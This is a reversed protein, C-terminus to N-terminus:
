LTAIKYLKQFRQDEAMEDKTAVLTDLLGKLISREYVNLAVADITRLLVDLMAEPHREAHGSEKLEYLSGDKIPRLFELSWKAAEPFADGCGALMSLIAESTAPTNWASGTPWFDRLWPHVKERWIRQRDASSGSFRRTLSRLLTALGEDPMEGVVDRIDPEALEGPADMCVTILLRRLNRLTRVELEPVRLIKLFPKKFARLLDRGLRPSWGYAAWLNGAEESQAPDLRAILHEATWVQDIMFLYHLRPMLMARGLHGDPGEVIADFYSRVEAPIGKDAVPEHKQLRVWAAEALRGAPHNLASTVPDWMEDIRDEVGKAGIWAKKWLEKFEAERDTGYEKALRSIFAAAASGVERFLREPAAALIEAVNECLSASIEEDEGSAGLHWLLGEWYSTPWKSQQTLRRLASVVETCKRVMLGRLEYEGIREEDLAAVIDDVSGEVLDLPAFEEDSVTRFGESWIVFEDRDNGDRDGCPAAEAALARAKKDLTAGSIQLKCLRLAKEHRIREPGDFSSLGKKSKPGAHIARVFEVRLNRPLRQGALRFFRLVERRMELCWMGPSQGTLLLKRALRIDARSNETLAHLALRKFLTSGSEVWRLLLNGARRREARGVEFYSDRALDILHTWADDERNQEHDAISRRYIHSGPYIADDNEGLVLALELHGTLTEACRVLVSADRLIECALDRTTEAGSSLKLHGCLEMAGMPPPNREYHRQLALGPAPGPCVVLQPAIRALAEGEIQRREAESAAAAFQDRSWLGAWPDAPPNGLLVTWMLRLREPMSPDEDALRRQIEQRFCPHLHGGNRLVWTLLQPVHLHRALWAALHARTRDVTNPDTSRSGNDILEFAAPDRDSGGQGLDSAGCRLLGGESLVYLWRELKVFESESVVAPEDALAKAAVPDDLAWLVRKAVPDDPGSPMKALENIAIRSRAQFPDKRLRAWETLTGELLRYGDRKDFIIPEVNKARWGDSAKSKNGGSGEWDAFAYATAFRAGNAREAAFADVMYRVVPDDISYGVFVVNFERFLDTVFRAAWGETLYARGFDAATLVLSSGDEDGSIRGHLQVLSSWAHPKPIPLKPAADVLGEDLGAEVFRNDFNTTVLRLGQEIRSLDMLAKHVSLKGTAPASLRKIVTKRLAVQGLREERELLGLMKDLSQENKAEIEVADPTMHNACYVHEVLGKFGPLGSGSGMSIGAGCFFVVKGGDLENLLRVPIEPGGPILEPM